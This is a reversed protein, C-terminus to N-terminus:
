RFLIIPWEWFVHLLISSAINGTRAFVFSSGMGFIMILFFYGISQFIGIKWWLLAMPIHILAWVFSTILNATVEDGTGKWVRNFLYGRFTTEETIATVLSLFFAAIFSKYPLGLDVTFNVGQYKLVNILLGEFAFGVGLALALYFSPFLNKKVFGLSRFGLKEKKILYFVPLLWVVPKILIEEFVEPFDFCLRYVGWTILLYGALYKSHKLLIEKKTM